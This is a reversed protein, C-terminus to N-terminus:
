RTGPSPSTSPNSPRFLLGTVYHGPLSQFYVKEVTFGDRKSKGYVVPQLPTKRPMPWLGNAVLVRRRLADARAHWAGANDPVAFPFHDNLTKLEGLRADNPVEGSDLVPPADGFAILGVSVCALFSLCSRM